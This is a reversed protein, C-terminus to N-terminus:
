NLLYLFILLLPTKKEIGRERGKRTMSKTKIVKDEVKNTSSDQGREKETKSRTTDQRTMDQRKKDQRTKNQKTKDQIYPRIRNRRVL